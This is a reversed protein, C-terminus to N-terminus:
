KMANKGRVSPVDANRDQIPKRAEKNKIRLRSRKCSSLPLRQQRYMPFTLRVTNDFIEFAEPQLPTSLFSPSLCSSNAERKKKERTEGRKLKQLEKCMITIREDRTHLTENQHPLALRSMAHKSPTSHYNANLSPQRSPTSLSHSRVTYLRGCLRIFLKM